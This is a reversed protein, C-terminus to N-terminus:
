GSLPPVEGFREIPLLPVREMSDVRGLLASLQEDDPRQPGECITFYSRIFESILAAPVSADDAGRRLTPGVHFALLLFGPVRAAGDRLAPQIFPMGLVLAGLRGYMRLRAIPDEDAIGSWARPDHVEGVALLVDPRAFWAGAVERMLRTGVGRGRLDPRVALYSLLVVGTGRFLEGVIGAVPAGDGGVAATVWVDTPGNGRLGDAITQVDDLEDATFSQIFVDEHLRHLLRDGPERRLDQFVLESADLPESSM